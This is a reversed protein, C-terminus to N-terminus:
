ALCDPHSRHHKMANMVLNEAAVMQEFWQVFLLHVFQHTGALQQADVLALRQEALAFRSM